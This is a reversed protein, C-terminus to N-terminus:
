GRGGFLVRHVSPFKKRLVFNIAAIIIITALTSVFYDVLIMNSFPSIFFSFVKNFTELILNHMAYIPFSCMFISPLKIDCLFGTLDFVAVIMLLRVVAYVFTESAFPSFIMIQSLLFAFLGILTPKNHNVVLSQHQVAFYAGFYYFILAKLEIEWIRVTGTGYAVLMLVFVVIAIMRNKLLPYILPFGYTLLILQYVFWFVLNYEYFFIGSILNEADLAFPPTNIFPLKSLFYFAIMSIINWLLYPVVLSFLRSKYKSILKSYDFNRYFLFASLAFFVPVSSQAINRSIFFELYYAFSNHEIDAFAYAHLFVVLVACIISIWNVKNRFRAEQM